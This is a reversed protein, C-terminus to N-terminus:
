PALLGGGGSSTSARMSSKRQRAEKKPMTGTIKGVRESYVEMNGENKNANFGVISNLLNLPNVLAVVEQEHGEDNEVALLVNLKERKPCERVLHPGNCLFCGQSKLNNNGQAVSHDKGGNRQSSAADKKRGAEKEKRNKMFKPPSFDGFEGQQLPFRGLCGCCHYCWSSGACEVSGKQKLNKLKDRAVWSVNGSLFQAKLEKKLRAWTDIKERGDDVDDVMHTRWWLKADGGLYMSSITVKETEPVRATLFYQEMGWLYNELEKASRAGGYAKPESVKVGVMKSSIKGLSQQWLGFNTVKNRCPSQYWNDCPYNKSRRFVQAATLNRVQSEAFGGDGHTKPEMPEMGLSLRMPGRWTDIQVGQAQGRGLKTPVWSCDMQGGLTRVIPETDEAGRVTWRDVKPVMPLGNTQVVFFDRRDANMWPEAEKAGRWLM